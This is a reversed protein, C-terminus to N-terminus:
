TEPPFMPKAKGRVAAGGNILIGVIPGTITCAIQVWRPIGDLVAATTCGTIFALGIRHINM